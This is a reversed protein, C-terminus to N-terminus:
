KLADTALKTLTELFLCFDDLLDENAQVGILFACFSPSTTAAGAVMLAVLAKRGGPSGLLGLRKALKDVFIQGLEPDPLDKWERLEPPMVDEPLEDSDIDMESVYLEECWEVFSQRVAAFQVWEM